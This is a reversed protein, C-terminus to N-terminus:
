LGGWQARARRPSKPKWATLRDAESAEARDKRTPQSFVLIVAMALVTDALFIVRLIAFRVAILRERRLRMRVKRRLTSSAIAEPLWVSAAAARRAASGSSIRAACFPM